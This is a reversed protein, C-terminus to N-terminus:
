TSTISKLFYLALIFRKKASNQDEKNGNKISTKISVKDHLLNFNIYNFAM